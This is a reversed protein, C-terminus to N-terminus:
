DRAVGLRFYRRSSEGVNTYSVPSGNGTVQHVHVTSWSSFTLGTDTTRVYLDGTTQGLCTSLAIAFLFFVIVPLFAIRSIVAFDKLTIYEDVDVAFAYRM